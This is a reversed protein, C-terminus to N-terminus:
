LWHRGYGRIQTNIMGVLNLIRHTEALLKEPPESIAIDMRIHLSLDQIDRLMNGVLERSERAESRIDNM